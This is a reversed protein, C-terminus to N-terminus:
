FTSSSSFEIVNGDPDHVIVTRLLDWGVMSRTTPKYGLRTLRRLVEQRNRFHMRATRTTTPRLHTYAELLLYAQMGVGLSTSLLVAGKGGGAAATEQRFGLGDRYFSLSNEMNAVRIRGFPIKPFLRTSRDTENRKKKQQLLMLAGLAGAIIGTCAAVFTVDSKGM